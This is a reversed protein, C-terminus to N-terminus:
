FYEILETKLYAEPDHCLYCAKSVNSCSKDVQTESLQYTFMLYNRVATFWTKHDCKSLDIAIWWKLGNGRPSRFLLLTEFLPDALLRAKLTEVDGLEDLDMCMLESHQILSADNCYAFVGSPTVYDFHLNKYARQEEKDTLARLAATEPMAWRGRVYQWVQFLTVPQGEPRKNTIPKKFFSMRALAPNWGQPQYDKTFDGM